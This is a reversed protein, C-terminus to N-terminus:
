SACLSLVTSVSLTFVTISCDIYDICALIWQLYKKGEHICHRCQHYLWLLGWIYCKDNWCNHLQSNQAQITSISLSSLSIYSCLHQGNCLCLKLFLNLVLPLLLFFGSFCRYDNTDNTGDKFPGQFVETFTRLILSNCGMKNLIHQFWQFPYVFLLVMPIAFLLLLITIALLAFPIHEKGFYEVAPANFLYRKMTLHLHGDFGQIYTYVNIPVLFNM